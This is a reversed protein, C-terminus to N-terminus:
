LKITKITLDTQTDNSNNDRVFPVGLPASLSELSSRYARQAREEESSGMTISNPVSSNSEPIRDSTIRTAERLLIQLDSDQNNLNWFVINCRKCLKINFHRGLTDHIIIGSDSDFPKHGFLLCWLLKM